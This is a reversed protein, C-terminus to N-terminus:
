QAAEKAHGNTPNREICPERLDVTVARAVTQQLPPLATLSDQLEPETLYVWLTVSFGTSVQTATISKQKIYTTLASFVGGNKPSL